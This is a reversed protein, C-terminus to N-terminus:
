FVYFFVHAMRYRAAPIRKIKETPWIESLAGIEEQIMYIVDHEKTQIRSVYFDIWEVRPCLQGSPFPLTGKSM